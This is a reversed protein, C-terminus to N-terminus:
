LMGEDWGAYRLASRIQEYARHARQKVVDGTTGLVSAAEAISLGEERLLVYASRNKESMRGIERDVVLLMHRTCADDEPSGDRSPLSRCTIPGSDAVRLDERRRQRRRVRDLHASRAIAFAWNLAPAGPIYSARARHLRLFADQFLDDADSRNRALRLCFRHLRPALAEYLEGFATAEGAAYRQMISNLSATAGILSPETATVACRDVSLISLTSEVLEAGDMTVNPTM